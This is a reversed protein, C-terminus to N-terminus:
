GRGSGWSGRARCAARSGGIESGRQRECLTLGPVGYVPQPQRASRASYRHHRLGLLQLTTLALLSHMVDTTSAPEGTRTARGEAAIARGEARATSEIRM